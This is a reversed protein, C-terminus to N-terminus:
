GKENKIPHLTVSLKVQQWWTMKEQQHVRGILEKFLAERNATDYDTVIQILQTDRKSIRVDEPKV